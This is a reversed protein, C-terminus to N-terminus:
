ETELLFDTMITNSVDMGKKTLKIIGGENTMFGTKVYKAIVEGYIQYISHGFMEHFTAASVGCTMRLGLFMFEEMLREANADEEVIHIHNWISYANGNQNPNLSVQAAQMYSDMSDIYEEINDTNAYRRGRVFSAAGLGLGLYDKLQWYIMNHRCEFGTKAYNSIEYRHYGALELIKETAHYMDRDVKEGPLQRLMETDGALATGEEVILSYASIHNPAMKLVKGLTDLYSHMDQGPLAAMVDVNINKIGGERAMDFSALFQDFNHIRGIKLLEADNASQLGISMRNIGCSVYDRVKDRSLTGPNAEISIECDEDIHFIERICCIIKVIDESAVLSPTGGGIYITKVVYEEALYSYAKIEQCLSKIYKEVFCGKGQTLNEGVPFSLFDCYSCKRV